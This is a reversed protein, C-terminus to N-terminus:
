SVIHLTQSTNDAEKEELGKKKISSVHNIHCPLDLEDLAEHLIHDNVNGEILDPPQACEAKQFLYRWRGNSFRNEVTTM